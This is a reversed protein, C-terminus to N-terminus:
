GKKRMIEKKRVDKLMRKALMNIRKKIAPKEMRKELEQRRAFPMDQKKVGKSLKLFILMRAQKQARGQLKQPTAMKRKARDRGLKIRSKIRKFLRQRARRQTMTLAM